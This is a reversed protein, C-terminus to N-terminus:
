VLFYIEFIDLRPFSINYEGNYSPGPISSINIVSPVLCAQWIPKTRSWTHRGDKRIPVLYAQCLKLITFGNELLCRWKLDFRMPPFSVQLWPPQDIRAISCSNNIWISVNNFYILDKITKVKFGFYLPHDLMFNGSVPPIMDISSPTALLM